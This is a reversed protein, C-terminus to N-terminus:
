QLGGFLARFPNTDEHWVVEFNSRIAVSPKDWLDFDEALEYYLIDRIINAKDAFRLGNKMAEHRKEDTSAIEYDAQCRTSKSSLERGLTYLRKLQESMFGASNDGMQKTETPNILEDDKIMQLELSLNNIWEMGTVEKKEKM